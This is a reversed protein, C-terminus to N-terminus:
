LLGKFHFFIRQSRRGVRLKPRGGPFPKIWILGPAVMLRYGDHKIEHVWAPGSPPQVVKSPLCPEIFGVLQAKRGIPAPKWRQFAM